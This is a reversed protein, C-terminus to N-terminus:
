YVGILVATGTIGGTGGVAIDIQTIAATSKVFLAGTGHYYTGSSPGGLWVITGNKFSGSNYDNLTYTLSSSAIAGFASATLNASTAGSQQAYTISGSSVNNVYQHVTNYIATTLGNVTLTLTGSTAVATTALIRIELDRYTAPISTFSIASTGSLTATQIVKKGLSAVLTGNITTTTTASTSASTGININRTASLGTTANTGININQTALSFQGTGININQTTGTSSSGTFLSFTNTGTALTGSQGITVTNSSTGINMTTAAGFANITTSVTNFVDMSATGIISTGFTPSIARINNGSGSSVVWSPTAGTGGSILVDGLTGPSTNLTIPSTTSLLSLGASTVTGVADLGNKVKFNNNTTAM